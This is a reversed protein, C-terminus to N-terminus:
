ALAAEPTPVTEMLKGLEAQQANAQPQEAGQEPQQEAKKAAAELVEQKGEFYMLQAAQEPQIMGAKVMELMTQNHIAQSFPTEQEVKVSIYFEIPLEIGNDSTRKMMASEFTATEQVGDHILFVTRPLINYEREIEIEKRVCIHYTEHLADVLMKDRKSSAEQLANIASFATVGGGVNGQSVDNAGSTDKMADRLTQIYALMYDPLPPTTFWKVGDITTGQHVEKTWDSLDDVDFGSNVGVLLKNHSALFANKFVIQDLKDLLKQLEGLQDVMGWGLPTGKRRFMWTVEFPYEGDAFYGEPRLDKSDSLLRRGAMLAMHVKYGGIGENLTQDYERRWYEFMLVSKTQDYKLISDRAETYNDVAFKGKHDPFNAELWDITRPYVKIVARGDQIDEVQPDFMICRADVYRIFAQGIGRNARPDFGVEQVCYGCVLLDHVLKRYDQPYKAADHNQKIIAGVVEALEKDRPDEPTIIAQPMRAVLGAKTSEIASLLSPTKPRPENKDKIPVDYWHDGRYLKENDDCRKFEATYASRYEELLKYAESILKEEDAKQKLKVKAKQFINM